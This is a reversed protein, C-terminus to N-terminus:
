RPMDLGLYGALFPYAKVGNWRHGGDFFDVKLADEAQFARYANRIRELAPGIRDRVMLEDQKGVEWMCPRAAILSSIEPVDGFKLLGPIVQAGCGWHGEIREQILNLAGSIVAVRVRPEVAATMMTMRGGYSLGVCGIRKPDVTIQRALLEFAWLADRLNEAILLKGLVMMRVFTVACPDEGGYTKEHDLRRGFPTFCPAAVVYGQRVLQLGYDYHTDVMEAHADPTRALGVVPDNGWKGHGHLALIGPHRRNVAPKPTLVYLPLPRMGVAKLTLSEQRYDAFDVTEDLSTEWTSPPEFPGLLEHLKARFGEQWQRCEEATTGTFQMTLPAHEALQRIQDNVNDFHDQARTTLATLAGALCSRRSMSPYMPYPGIAKTPVM